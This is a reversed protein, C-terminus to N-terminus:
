AGFLGFQGLGFEHPVVITLDQLTGFRVSCGSAVLRHWIQRHQWTLSFQFVMSIDPLQWFLGLQWNRNFNHWVALTVFSCLAGFRGSSPM